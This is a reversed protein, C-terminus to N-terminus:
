SRFVFVYVSARPTGRNFYSSMDIQIRRGAFDCRRGLFDLQTDKELNLRTARACVRDM